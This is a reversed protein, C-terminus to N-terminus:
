KETQTKLKKQSPVPLNSPSKRKKTKDEKTIIDDEALLMEEDQKSTTKVKSNVIPEEDEDLDIIEIEEPKKPRPKVNKNKSIMIAKNIVPASKESELNHEEVIKRKASM